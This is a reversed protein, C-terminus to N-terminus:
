FIQPQGVSLIKLPDSFAGTIANFHPNKLHTYRHYNLDNIKINGKYFLGHPEDFPIKRKNEAKETMIKNYTMDNLGFNM